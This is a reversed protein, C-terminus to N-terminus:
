GLYNNIYVVQDVNNKILIKIQMSLHIELINNEFTEIVQVDNQNLSHEEIKYKYNIM